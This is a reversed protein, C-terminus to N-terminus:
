FFGGYGYGPYGGGFGGYGPFGGGFGGYGYGPYGGGFGGYGPYGGGFGGYGYGPYGGYGGGYYGFGNDFYGFGNNNYVDIDLGFLTRRKRTVEVQDSTDAQIPSPLEATPKQDKYVVPVCLAVGFLCSLIIVVRM